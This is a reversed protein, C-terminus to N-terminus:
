PYLPSMYYYNFGGWSYELNHACFLIAELYRLLLILFSRSGDYVSSQVGLCSFICWEWCVTFMQLFQSTGLCLAFRSRDFFWFSITQIRQGCICLLYILLLVSVLFVVTAAPYHTTRPVLPAPLVAWLARLPHPVLCPHPCHCSLLARVTEDLWMCGAGLM